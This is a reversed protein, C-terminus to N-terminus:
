EDPATDVLHLVKWFPSDSGSDLVSPVGVGGHELTGVKDFYITLFIPPQQM